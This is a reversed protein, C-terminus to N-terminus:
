SRARPLSNGSSPCSAGCSRRSRRAHRESRLSIPTGGSPTQPLTSEGGVDVIDAGQELLALGHAVAADAAFSLGGDSFSDATVNVVGM